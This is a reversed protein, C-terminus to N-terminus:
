IENHDKGELILYAMLAATPNLHMVRNANVVLTGHGDADVRLHVRSKEGPNEIAYHFIRTSELTERSQFKGSDLTLLRQLGSAINKFNLSM